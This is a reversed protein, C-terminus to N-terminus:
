RFYLVTVSRPPFTYRLAPADATQVVPLLATETKPAIQEPHDFSNEAELNDGTLTTIRAMVTDGAGNWGPLAINTTLATESGNVVKVMYEDKTRGATAHFLRIGEEFSSMLKDDLYCRVQPGRVEIRISYWRGTEISGPVDQGVVTKGGNVMREVAHRTNGWGGLNWWYLNKDDRVRFPILFGEAGAIKRAKVSYTYDTWQPDGLIIRKDDGDESQAISDSNHQWTGQVIREASIPLSTGDSGTVTIEKFEAQTNWTGLGVAGNSPPRNSIAAIAQPSFLLTTPLSVQPLNNSFLRQVQYSPTGYVQASNFVIADPNWARNESRVFLPAYSAMQVVDANREMGVM